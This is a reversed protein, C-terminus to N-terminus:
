YYLSVGSKLRSLTMNFWTYDNKLIDFYKIYSINNEDPAYYDININNINIKFGKKQDIFMYNKNDFYILNSNKTLNINTLNINTLNINTLHNTNDKEKKLLDINLNSVFDSLFYNDGNLFYNDGDSIM